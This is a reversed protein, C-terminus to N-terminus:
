AIVLDLRWVIEAIEREVQRQDFSKGVPGRKPRIIGDVDKAFQAIRCPDIQEIRQKQQNVDIQDGPQNPDSQNRRECGEVSEITRIKPSNKSRRLSNENKALRARLSPIAPMPRKIKFGM